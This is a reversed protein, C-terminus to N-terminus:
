SHFSNVLGKRYAANYVRAKVILEEVLDKQTEYIGEIDFTDQFSGKVM